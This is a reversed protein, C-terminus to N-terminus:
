RLIIIQLVSSKLSDLGVVTAIALGREKSVKYPFQKKDLILFFTSFGKLHKFNTLFKAAM